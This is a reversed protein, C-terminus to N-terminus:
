AMEIHLVIMDPEFDCQGPQQLSERLHRLDRDPISATQQQGFPASWCGDINSQLVLAITGHLLQLFRKQL